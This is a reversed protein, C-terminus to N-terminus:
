PEYIMGHAVQMYLVPAAWDYGGLERKVGQRAMSVAYDVPQTQVLERYLISAFVAAADDEVKYRMGVVAMLHTQAILEPVLGELTEGGYVEATQCANLVLLKPGGVLKQSDLIMEVLDASGVPYFNGRHDELYLVIEEPKRPHPGAHGIFHVVDPPGEDQNVLESALAEQMNFETEKGGAGVGALVRIIARKNKLAEELRRQEKTADLQPLQWDKYAPPMHPSAIVLLIKLNRNRPLPLVTMAQASPNSEDTNPDAKNAAPLWRSIATGPNLALSELGLPEAVEWPWAALTPAGAFNLRLRVRYNYRSVAERLRQLMDRPLLAVALPRALAEFSAPANPDTASRWTEHLLQFDTPLEHNEAIIEGAPSFFRAARGEVFLRLDRTFRQKALITFMPLDPRTQSLEIEWIERYTVRQYARWWRGGPGTIFVIGVLLVLISAVAFRFPPQTWPPPAQVSFTANVPPSANLDTDFAQVTLSYSGGPELLAGARQAPTVQWDDGTLQYRYTLRETALSAGNFELDVDVQDWELTLAPWIPWLKGGARIGVIGLSPSIQSIPVHRVVGTETGIWLAGQADRWLATVRNADLGDNKTLSVWVDDQKDLTGNDDLGSLGGNAGVWIQGNSDVWLANVADNALGDKSTYFLWAATDTPDEDPPLRRLGAETGVWASGDAARVLARVRNALIGSGWTVTTWTRGDGLILGDSTGVWIIEPEVLLANVFDSVLGDAEHYEGVLEGEWFHFLGDDTGVWLNGSDDGAIARLQRDALQENGATIVGDSDLRQLGDASGFWITDGDPWLGFAATETLISWNQGDWVAVGEDSAAWVQEGEGAIAQINEGVAPFARWAEPNWRSVGGTTGLWLTGDETRHIVQVRDAVLGDAVTLHMDIRKSDFHLLGQPTGLWLGGVGDKALSLIDPEMGELDSALSILEFTKGTFRYLGRETGTWFEGEGADALAQVRGGRLRAATGYRQTAGEQPVYIVENGVALYAGGAATPLIARVSGLPQGDLESIQLDFKQGDSHVFGRLTGIWLGREGDLALATVWDDTLGDTSTFTQWSADDLHSLGSFTGIWLGGAGDSSLARVKKGALGDVPTFLRWESGDYRSLGVDTGVWVARGDEVWLANIRDLPLAGETTGVSFTKWKGTSVPQCIPPCGQGQVSLPLLSALVVVAFGLIGRWLKRFIQLASKGVKRL